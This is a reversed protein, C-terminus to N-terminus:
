QRVPLWAHVSFGGGPRPGAQLSGGLLQTREALGQLGRAGGGASREGAEGGSVPPAERGAAPTPADNAVTLDLGDDRYGLTVSAPASRAYQLANTLSEQVVRYAALEV